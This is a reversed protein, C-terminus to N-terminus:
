LAFSIQLLIKPLQVERFHLDYTHYIKSYTFTFPMVVYRCALHLMIDFTLTLVHKALSDVYDPLIWAWTAPCFTHPLGLKRDVRFRWRSFALSRLPIYLMHSTRKRESHQALTCIDRARDVDANCRGLYSSREFINWRVMHSRTFIYAGHHKM